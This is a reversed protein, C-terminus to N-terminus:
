PTVAVSTSGPSKAPRSFASCGPLVLTMRDSDGVLGYRRTTSMALSTAMLCRKPPALSTMSAVKAVGMLWRGSSAPASRTMWEHVLYRPPWLSRSAPATHPLSPSTLAM